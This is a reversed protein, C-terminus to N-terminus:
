AGSSESDSFYSSALVLITVPSGALIKLSLHGHYNASYNLRCARIPIGQLKVM